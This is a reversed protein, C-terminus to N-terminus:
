SLVLSILDVFKRHLYNQDEVTFERSYPLKIVNPPTFSSMFESIGPVLLFFFGGIFLFLCM